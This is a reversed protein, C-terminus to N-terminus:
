KDYLHGSTSPPLVTPSVDRSLCRPVPRLSNLTQKPYFFFMDNLSIQKYANCEIDYDGAM